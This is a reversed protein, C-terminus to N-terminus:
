PPSSTLSRAGPSPTEVGLDLRPHRARTGGLALDLQFVGQRLDLGNLFELHWIYCLVCMVSSVGSRSSIRRKRVVSGTPMPAM